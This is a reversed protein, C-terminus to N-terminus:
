GECCDLEPICMLSRKYLSAVSKIMKEYIKDCCQQQIALEVKSLHEQFDEPYTRYEDLCWDIAEEIDKVKLDSGPYYINEDGEVYNAILEDRRIVDELWRAMSVYWSKEPASMGIGNKGLFALEKYTQIDEKKLISKIKKLVAKDKKSQKVTELTFALFAYPTILTKSFQPLLSIDVTFMQTIANLIEKTPNNLRRTKHYENPSVVTFDIDSIISKCRLFLFYSLKEDAENVSPHQFTVKQWWREMARYLFLHSEMYKMGSSNISKLNEELKLMGKRFRYKNKLISDPKQRNVLVYLLYYPAIKQVSPKGLEKQLSKLLKYVPHKKYRTLEGREKRTFRRLPSNRDLIPYEKLRDMAIAQKSHLMKFLDSAFVPQDTLSDFNQIEKSTLSALYESMKDLIQCKSDLNDKQKPLRKLENWFEELKLLISGSVKLSEFFAKESKTLGQQMKCYEAYFDFLETIEEPFLELEQNEKPENTWSAYWKSARQSDENLSLWLPRLYEVDSCYYSYGRLSMQEYIASMLISDHIDIAKPDGDDELASTFMNDDTDILMFEVDNEALLYLDGMRIHPPEQLSSSNKFIFGDGSLIYLLIANLEQRFSNDNHLLKEKEILETFFVVVNHLPIEHGICFAYIKLFDIGEKAIAEQSFQRRIEHMKACPTYAIYNQIYYQERSLFAGNEVLYNALQELNRKM